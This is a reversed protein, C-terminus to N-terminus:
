LINDDEDETDKKITPSGWAENKYNESSGKEIKMEYFPHRIGFTHEM